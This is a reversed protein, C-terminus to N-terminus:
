STGDNHGRLGRNDAHGAAFTVPCCGVSLVGGVNRSLQPVLRINVAVDIRAIPVRGELCLDGGRHGLRRHEDGLPPVLEIAAVAIEAGGARGPFSIELRCNVAVSRTPGCPNGVIRPRWVQERVAREGGERVKARRYLVPQSGLSWLPKKRSVDRCSCTRWCRITPASSRRM